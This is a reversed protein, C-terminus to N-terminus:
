TLYHDLSWAIEFEGGCRTCRMSTTAHGLPARASCSPCVAYKNGWSTPLNVADPPRPVVSWAEPRVPLIQLATIPVTVAHQNVDLVAEVDTTSLVPYWAGRRLQYNAGTKVRAWQQVEPTALSGSDSSAM